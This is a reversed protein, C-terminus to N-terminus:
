NGVRDELIQFFNQVVILESVEGDASGGVELM